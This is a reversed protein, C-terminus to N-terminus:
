FKCAFLRGADTIIASKNIILQYSILNLKKLRIFFYATKGFTHCIIWSVCFNSSRQYQYVAGDLILSIYVSRYLTNRSM